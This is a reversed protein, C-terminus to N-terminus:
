SLRATPGSGGRRAYQVGHVQRGEGTRPGAGGSGPGGGPRGHRSGSGFV